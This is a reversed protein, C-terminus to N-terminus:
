HVVHFVGFAFYFFFITCSYESFYVKTKTVKTFFFFFYLANRSLYKKGGAYSFNFIPSSRSINILGLFGHRVGHSCIRASFEEDLFSSRIKSLMIAMENRHYRVNISNSITSVIFLQTIVSNCFQRVLRNVLSSLSSSLFFFQFFFHNKQRIM